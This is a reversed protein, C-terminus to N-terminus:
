RSTRHEIAISAALQVGVIALYFAGINPRTEQALRFTGATLGLSALAALPYNGRSGNAINVGLPAGIASGALGAYFYGFESDRLVTGGILMGGGFGLVSGLIGGGAM